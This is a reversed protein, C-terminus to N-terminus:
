PCFYKFLKNLHLNLLIEEIKDFLWLLSLGLNATSFLQIENVIMCLNYM